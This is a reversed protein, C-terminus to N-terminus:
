EDPEDYGILDSVIFHQPQERANADWFRAMVAAAGDREEV